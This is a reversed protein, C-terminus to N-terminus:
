RKNWKMINFVRELARMDDLLKNCEMSGDNHGYESYKTHLEEYKEQLPNDYARKIKKEKEKPKVGENEIREWAQEPDEM